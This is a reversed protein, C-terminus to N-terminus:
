VARLYSFISYFKLYKKFTSEFLGFPVILGL